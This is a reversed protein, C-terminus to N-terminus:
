NECDGCRLRLYEATENTQHPNGIREKGSADIVVGLVIAHGYEFKLFGTIYFRDSLKGFGVTGETGLDALNDNSLLGDDLMKQNGEERAPVTQQNADRSKCLSQEDFREGLSKLELEAAYL